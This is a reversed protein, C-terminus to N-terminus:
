TINRVGAIYELLEAIFDGIIPLNLLELSQLIQFGIFAIVTIGLAIGFGKAMGSLLNIAILRWPRSRLAFYDVLQGYSRALHRIAAMEEPTLEATAPQEPADATAFPQPRPRIRVAPQPRPKLERRLTYRASM